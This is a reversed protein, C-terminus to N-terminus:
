KRAYTGFVWVSDQIQTPSYTHHYLENIMFSESGSFDGRLYFDPPYYIGFTTDYSDKDAKTIKSFPDHEIYLYVTKRDAAITYTGEVTVDGNRYLFLERGSPKVTLFTFVEGSSLAYTGSPIHAEDAYRYNDSEQKYKHGELVYSGMKYPLESLRYIHTYLAGDTMGLDEEETFVTFQSFETDFDEAYCGIWDEKEKDSRTLVFTLPTSVDEGVGRYVVRFSGSYKPAGDEVYSFSMVGKSGDFTFFTDEDEALVWKGTASVLEDNFKEAGDQGFLGDLVDCGVFSSLCLILCILIISAKKLM